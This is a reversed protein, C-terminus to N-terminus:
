GMKQLINYTVDCLVDYIESYLKIYEANGVDNPRNGFLISQICPYSNKNDILMFFLQNTLSGLAPIHFKQDFDKPYHKYFIKSRLNKYKQIPSTPKIVEVTGNKLDDVTQQLIKIQQELKKIDNM